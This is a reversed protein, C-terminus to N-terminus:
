VVFIDFNMVESLDKMQEIYDGFVMVFHAGYDAANRFLKLTDRVKIRVGLSCSIKDVGFVEQVEGKTLLIKTQGPNARAIARWSLIMVTKSLSRVRSLRQSISANRLLSIHVKETEPDTDSLGTRLIKM